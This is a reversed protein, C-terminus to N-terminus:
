TERSTLYHRMVYSYSHFFLMCNKSLSNSSVHVSQLVSLIHIKGWIQVFVVLLMAFSWAKHINSSTDSTFIGYKMLSSLLLIRKVRHVILDKLKFIKSHLWVDFIYFSITGGLYMKTMSSHDFNWKHKYILVLHMEWFNLSPLERRVWDWKLFDDIFILFVTIEEM